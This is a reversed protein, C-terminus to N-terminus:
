PLGECQEWWHHFLREMTETPDEVVLAEKIKTAYMAFSLPPVRDVRRLRLDRSAPSRLWAEAAEADLFTHMSDRRAERMLVHDPEHEGLVNFIVEASWQLKRTPKQKGFYNRYVMLGTQAANRFHFKMLESRTLAHHFDAGFGEPVLLGPLEKESIAQRKGVTLVFGYDHPTAVANGGRLRSLRATVVRSLADNAARGILSHFFYHRAGTEEVLEEILLFDDTPIESVQHQALHAKALIAGNAAGCDLRQAIWKELGPEDIRGRLENRFAAIERAVNNSLPMKNANWRPVTPVAGEARVVHAEMMGMREVRVARGAIVFVDGVLLRRAFSEEVSGLTKSGLRVHIVGVNPIVGVNELFDRQVRGPRTQFVEDDLDIKGFTEAYQQRLSRGGGALYDLM